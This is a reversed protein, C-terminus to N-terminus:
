GNRRILKLRIGVLRVPWQVYRGRGSSSILCLDIQSGGLAARKTFRERRQM